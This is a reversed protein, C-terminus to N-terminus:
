NTWPLEEEEHSAVGRLIRRAIETRQLSAPRAFRDTALVACWAPLARRAGAAYFDVLKGRLRDGAMTCTFHHLFHALGAIAQQRDQGVTWLGWIRGPNAEACRQLELLLRGALAYESAFGDASSGLEPALLAVLIRPAGPAQVAWDVANTIVASATSGGASGTIVVWPAGPAMRFGPVQQEYDYLRRPQPTRVKTWAADLIQAFSQQRGYYPLARLALEAVIANKGAGDLVDIWCGAPANQLAPPLSSVFPQYRRLQSLAARLEVPIVGPAPAIAETAVHVPVQFYPREGPFDPLHLSDDAHGIDIGTSGSCIKVYSLDSSMIM